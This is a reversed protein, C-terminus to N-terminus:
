LMEALFSRVGKVLDAVNDETVEEFRGHDAANRVDIWVAIQKQRLRNYVTKAALKSNLASLDDRPKVPIENREALSRLGNELVAGALSAAPASYGHVLLHDAQDLFDSFVEATAMDQLSMLHGQEVDELAASLIGLGARASHTRGPEETRSEFSETYTHASGFVQELCVLAQSRWEAFRQGDLTPFDGIYNAPLPRHTALVAEGKEILSTLREQVREELQM